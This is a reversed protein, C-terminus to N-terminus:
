GIRNFLMRTLMSFIVGLQNRIERRCLHDYSDVTMKHRGHLAHSSALHTIHEM